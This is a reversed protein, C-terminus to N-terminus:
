TDLFIEMFVIFSNFRYFLMFPMTVHFVVGWWERGYYSEEMESLRSGEAFEVFSNNIWTALNCLALYVVSVRFLVYALSSRCQRGSVRAAHIMFATQLLNEILNSCQSVLLFAIQTNSPVQDDHSAHPTLLGTANFIQRSSYSHKEPDIFGVTDNHTSEDLSSIGAIVSFVFYFANGFTTLIIMLELGHFEHFRSQFNRSCHFGVISLVISPLRHTIKLWAYVFVWIRYDSPIYTVFGVTIFLLNFLIGLLVCPSIRRPTNGEPHTDRSGRGIDEDQLADLLQRHDSDDIVEEDANMPSALNELTGEADADQQILETCARIIEERFESIQQRICDVKGSTQSRPDQDRTTTQLYSDINQLQSLLQAMQPCTVKETLQIPDVTASYDGVPCSSYDIFLDRRVLSSAPGSASTGPDAESSLEQRSGTSDRGRRHRLGDDTYVSERGMHTWTETRADMRALQEFQEPSKMSFFLHILVECVLLLYEINIPVLFVVVKEFMADISTNGTLCGMPDDEKKRSSNGNDTHHYLLHRAEYMVTEFWVSLTTILIVILCYRSSTCMVFTRRQFFVCFLMALGMFTLRFLLYFIDGLSRGYKGREQSDYFVQVCSVEDILLLLDYFAGLVYFLVIGILPLAKRIVRRLWALMLQQADARDNHYEAVNQIAEPSGSYMGTIWRHNSCRLIMIIVSSAAMLATFYVDCVAVITYHGQKDLTIWHGVSLSVSLSLLFILLVLTSVFGDQRIGSTVDAGSTPRVHYGVSFPNVM